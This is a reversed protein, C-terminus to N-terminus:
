SCMCEVYPKTVKFIKSMAFVIKNITFINSAVNAVLPRVIKRLMNRAGIWPILGQWSHPKRIIM